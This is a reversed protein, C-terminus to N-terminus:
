SGRYWEKGEGNTAVRESGEGESNDGNGAGGGEGFPSARLRTSSVIAFSNSSRTRRASAPSSVAEHLSLGRESTASM